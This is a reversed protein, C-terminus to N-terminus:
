GFIVRASKLSSVRRRLSGLRRPPESRTAIGVDVSAPARDLLLSTLEHCLPEVIVHYDDLALVIRAERLALDNVVTPVAERLDSGPSLLVANARSSIVAGAERLAAVVYRCFLAPDNETSELSLWGVGIGWESLRRCWDAMLTTKAFGVCVSFRGGCWCRM